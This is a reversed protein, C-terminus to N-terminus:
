LVGARKVALYESILAAHMQSSLSDSVIVQQARLDALLRQQRLAHQTAGCLSLADDLTVIEQQQAQEVAQQRISAVMVLHHQSLMSVARVLDDRDEPEISSIIVVLSRKSYRSLLQQSAGIFDSTEVSSHLDYIQDLLHSIQQHGKVPPVWRPQGAFSMLGVSDGQRLAIFASILLANLAHDFHSIEGDKARMRRGCDLMFIVQQDREDQYERSIPKHFRATARWDIQRLADGSRFERLQRFDTGEGRRQSLQVGIEHYLQESNVFSSRFLPKYNPYIKSHGSAGLLFNKDWLKWGSKVLCCVQGFEALGRQVPYVSYRIDAHEGVALQLSVPLHRMHLQQAPLDTLRLHYGRAGRNSIHIDVAQEVGLALHPPLNRRVQLPPPRRLSLYDLAALLLLVVLYGWFLLNLTAAASWEALNAVALLLGLLVWLLVLQLLLPSPKM